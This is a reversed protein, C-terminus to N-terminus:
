RDLALDAAAALDVVQPFGPEPPDERSRTARGVLIGRGGFGHSPIVDRVRDGIWISRALDVGHAAAADRYLKVQPKRCECPGTFDPHHPCVYTADIRTGAGGLLEDIRAAVAQYATWDFLGRAIGSQNTVVIVALGAARFRAIANAAGLILRVQDPQSLYGVEEIVTGDRDLFVAARGTV